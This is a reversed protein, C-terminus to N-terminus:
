RKLNWRKSLKPAVPVNPEPTETNNDETNDEGNGNEDGNQNPNDIDETDEVDEEGEEDGIVGEITAKLNNLAKTIDTSSMNVKANKLAKAFANIDNIDIEDINNAVENSLKVKNEFLKAADLHALQPLSATYLIDSIVHGKTKGMNLENVWADIGAKDLEMGKSTNDYTKNFVNEYFFTILKKNDYLNDGFYEKAASTELMTNAVTAM